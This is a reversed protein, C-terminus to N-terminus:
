DIYNKRSEEYYCRPAVIDSDETEKESTYNGRMAVGMFTPMDTNSPSLTSKQAYSPFILGSHYLAGGNMM